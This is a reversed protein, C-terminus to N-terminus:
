KLVKGAEAKMLAFTRADPSDPVSLRERTELAAHFLARAGSLDGKERL